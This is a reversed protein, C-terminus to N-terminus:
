ALPQRTNGRRLEVSWEVGNGCEPHAHQVAGEVRFAATVPSRWAAGVSLAPTPHVAVSHPKMNGPVRVHQDSSNAVVSMADDGGWGNVFDYGSLKEIKATLTTGLSVPGATGIGLYNLWGTLAEPQVNHRQALLGVDTQGSSKAADSAAELCSAVSEFMQSRKEALHISVARVDRLLLDPRGPAVFRPREWVAFDQSNGDGADGTGLYLVVDGGAASEPVPVPLRVDQRSAIPSVGEMWAAPGNLKGIHGVTTFKWLAQQWRSVRDTLSAADAATAKNWRSRLDDLLLAANKAKKETGAENVTGATVDAQPTNLVSWLTALYKSNLGYTQAVSSISAQGSRLADREVLTAHLYKEVPLRGGENTDFVVGQLNVKDGGGHDAFQRYFGRIADLRDNAWDNRSSSESFRFGDPLLVAHSAVDRAADLYKTVLAPSMALANGTNTFGEGAAGDVPFERAPTLGVGTLDQISYTYEANSLRRLVVLGPDGASALAEADLYKQVWDRLKQRQSSDPQPADKPPMERHDLMEVVKLWARSDGRVADFSSFRELDLEGEKAATSHCDLCFQKLLPRAFQSYEAALAEFGVPEAEGAHLGSDSLEDSPLTLALLVVSTFLLTTRLSRGSEAVSKSHFVSTKRYSSKM